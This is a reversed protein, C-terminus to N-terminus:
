GRPRAIREADPQTHRHALAFARDADGSCIADLLPEHLDVIIQPEPYLHDAMRLFLLAPGVLRRYLEILRESGAIEVVTRHFALDLEILKQRNGTRAANRMDGFVRELRRRGDDNITQAALRAGLSELTDRLISIERVDQESIEIVFHGRRPRHVVLADAQLYKLAGRITSQSVGFGNALDMEVLRDGQKWIGGLIDNRILNATEAELSPRSLRAKRTASM